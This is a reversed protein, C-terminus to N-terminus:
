QQRARLQGRHLHRDADGSHGQAATGAHRTRSLAQSRSPLAEDGALARPRRHLRDAPQLVARFLGEGGSALRRGIHRELGPRATSQRARRGPDLRDARPEVFQAPRCVLDRPEVAGGRAFARLDDCIRGGLRHQDGSGRAAVHHDFLRGCGVLRARRPFQVRWVLRRRAACAHRPHLHRHRRRQRHRPLRERIRLRARDAARPRPVPLRGDGANRRGRGHGDPHQRRCLGARRDPRGPLDLPRCPAPARRAAPRTCGNPPFRRHADYGYTRPPGQIHRTRSLLQNSGHRCRM